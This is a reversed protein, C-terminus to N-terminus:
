REDIGNFKEWERASKCNRRCLYQSSVPIFSEHFFPYVYYVLRSEFGLEVAWHTVCYGDVIDPMLFYLYVLRFEFGLEVARQHCFVWWLSYWAVFTTQDQHKNKKNPSTVVRPRGTNSAFAVADRVAIHSVVM